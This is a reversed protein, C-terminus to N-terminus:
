QKQWDTEPLNTVMHPTKCFKLGGFVRKTSSVSLRLWSWHSVWSVSLGRLWTPACLLFLNWFSGCAVAATCSSALFPVADSPSWSSGLSFPLFSGPAPIKRHCARLSRVPASVGRCGLSSSDPSFFLLSSQPLTMTPLIHKLREKNRGVQILKLQCYILSSNGLDPRKKGHHYTTIKRDDKLQEM